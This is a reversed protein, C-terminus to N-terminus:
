YLYFIIRCHADCMYGDPFNGNCLGMDCEEYPSQVIGDGCYPGFQCNVLCSGYAPSGLPENAAGTDCQEAGNKIGDGCYAALQACGPPCSNSSGDNIGDDCAEGVDIIGNGCRPTLDLIPECAKGPTPCRYGPEVQCTETCGDGNKGNGDDCGEGLERRLNGCIVVPIQPVCQVVTDIRCSRSCGDSSYQNGDDCEEGPDLKGNGCRYSATTATTGGLAQTATAAASGGRSNLFDVGSTASHAATSSTGVNGGQTRPDPEATGEGGAGGASTGNLSEDAKGGCGLALWTALLVPYGRM